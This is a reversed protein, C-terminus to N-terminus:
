ENVKKDKSVDEEENDLVGKTSNKFERLTKGVAQGLEPLKGPGFIILALIIILILSSVGINAMPSGGKKLIYAFWVYSFAHQYMVVEYM